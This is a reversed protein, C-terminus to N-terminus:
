LRQKLTNWCLKKMKMKMVKSIEIVFLPSVSYLKSLGHPRSLAVAKNCYEECLCQLIVERDDIDLFSFGM